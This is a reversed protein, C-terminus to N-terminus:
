AEPAWLEWSTTEPKAQGAWPFRLRLSAATGTCKRGLVEGPAGALAVGGRAMVDHAVRERTAEKRLWADMGAVSYGAKGMALLRSVLLRAAPPVAGNSAKACEQMLFTGVIPADKAIERLAAPHPTADLMQQIRDHAHGPVYACVPSESAVALLLKRAADNPAPGAAM